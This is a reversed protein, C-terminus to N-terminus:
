RCTPRSFSFFCTLRLRCSLRRECLRRDWSPGCIRVRVIIQNHPDETAQVQVRVIIKSFKKTFVYLFATKQHKLGHMKFVVLLTGKGRFHVLITRGLGWQPLKCREGSGMAPNLPSVELPLSPFPPSSLPPSPLPPSISQVRVINGFGLCCWSLLLYFVAFYSKWYPPHFEKVRCHSVHSQSSM